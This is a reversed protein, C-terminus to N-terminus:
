GFVTYSQGILKPTSAAPALSGFPRPAGRAAPNQSRRTQRRLRLKRRKGPPRREQHRPPALHHPLSDRGLGVEQLRAAMGHPTARCYLPWPRVSRSSGSRRKGRSHPDSPAGASRGGRGHPRLCTDNGPSCGYQTLVRWANYLSQRCVPSRTRMGNAISNASVTWNPQHSRRNSRETRRACSARLTYCYPPHNPPGHRTTRNGGVTVV